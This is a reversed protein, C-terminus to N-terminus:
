ATPKANPNPGFRNTGRESPMLALEVLAWILVFSAIVDFFGAPHPWAIVLAILIIGAWWGSRGRDHLRKSLVCAMCYFFAPLALWGVVYRLLGDLAAEYLGLGLLLVSMAIIFPVKSMRGTSSLFLEVWDTKETM